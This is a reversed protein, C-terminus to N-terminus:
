QRLELKKVHKGDIRNSKKEMLKASIRKISADIQYLNSLKAWIEELQSLCEEHIGKICIVTSQGFVWLM